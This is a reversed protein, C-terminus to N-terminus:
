HRMGYKMRNIHLATLSTGAGEAVSLGGMFISMVPGIVGVPTLTLVLSRRCLLFGLQLKSM